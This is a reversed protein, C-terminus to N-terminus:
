VFSLISIDCLHWSNISLLCKLFHCSFGKSARTEKCNLRTIQLVGTSVEASDYGALSEDNMKMKISPSSQEWVAGGCLRFRIGNEERLELERDPSRSPHRCPQQFLQFLHLALGFPFLCLFLSQRYTVTIRKLKNTFTIYRMLALRYQPPPTAM